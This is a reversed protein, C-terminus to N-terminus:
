ENLDTNAGCPLRTRLTVPPEPDIRGMIFDAWLLKPGYIIILILSTYPWMDSAVTVNFLPAPGARSAENVKCDM